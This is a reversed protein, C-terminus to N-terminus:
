LGISKQVDEVTLAEMEGRDYAAIRDLAEALWAKDSVDRQHPSFSALLADLIGQREERSLGLVQKRLEDLDDVM